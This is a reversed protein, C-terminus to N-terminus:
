PAIGTNWEYEGDEEYQEVVFEYEGEGLITKLIQDIVWAKHHDGEIGGYMLITDIADRVRNKLMENDSSLNYTFTDM